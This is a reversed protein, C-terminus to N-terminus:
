VLGKYVEDLTAAEGLGAKLLLEQMTGVAKLQGNELFGIRHAIKQAVNLTHTVMLVAGGNKAFDLFQKQAIESSTPDLGVIPEDVLLLKPKHLFAAMISFKQKNGRSYDEFYDQTIGELGFMKLLPPIRKEREARGLGYLAGVIHLFEGGTISTWVSPEDPIYGILNKAKEPDKVVNFDGVTIIGATPQLLGSVSKVITTKGSGNPGILCFIEGPRVEFSVNQVAKKNGFNKSLNAIKLM